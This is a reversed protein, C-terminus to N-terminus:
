ARRASALAAALEDIVPTEAPLPVDDVRHVATLPRISSVVAVEDAGLLDELSARVLRVHVGGAAALELVTRRSISDVIGLAPDPAHLVGGTSWVVGFTPGELVHGERSVLLADQAGARRALRTAIMNPGYSLTKAGAPAYEALPRIWPAVGTALHRLLPRDPQPTLTAVRTGSATVVLRLAADVAGARALLQEAEAVLRAVADTPLATVELSRRLRAEHEPLHFPRGGWVGITEFAGDGRLAGDDSLALHAQGFPLATGDVVALAPPAGM